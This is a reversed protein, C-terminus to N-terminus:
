EGARKIRSCIRSSIATRVRGDLKRLKSKSCIYRAKYKDEDRIYVDFSVTSLFPIKHIKYQSVFPVENWDDDFVGIEYFEVDQRRNFMTMTTVVLGDMYSTRLKPYTPVMEHASATSGVLLALGIFALAIKNKLKKM